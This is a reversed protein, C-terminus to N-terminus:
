SFQVGQKYQNGAITFWYNNLLWLLISAKM